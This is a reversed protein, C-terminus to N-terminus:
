PKKQKQVCSVPFTTQQKNAKRVCTARKYFGALVRFVQPRLPRRRRCRFAWSSRRRRMWRYYRDRTYYKHRGFGSTQQEAQVNRNERKKGNEDTVCVSAVVERQGSTIQAPAREDGSQALNPTRFMEHAGVVFASTRQLVDTEHLFVVAQVALETEFLIERRNAM